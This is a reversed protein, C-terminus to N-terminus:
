RSGRGTSSLFAKENAIIHDSPMVLMLADKHKEALIEAVAAIAPATNRSCPELIIQGINIGEARLNEAVLFRHEENCIITPESFQEGEVRTITKSFLSKYTSSSVM